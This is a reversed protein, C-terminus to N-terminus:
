IIDDTPENYYILVGNVYDSNGDVVPIAKYDYEEGMTRDIFASIIDSIEIHVM